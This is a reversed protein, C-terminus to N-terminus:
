YKKKAAASKSLQLLKKKRAEKERKLKEEEELAELDEKKAARLASMEEREVDDFGGEMDSSADSEYDDQEDDEADDLDSWSVYGSYKDDTLRKKKEKERVAAPDVKRMTGKYNLPERETAPKKMTGKYSLEVAKKKPAPANPTGSRSRDGIAGAAVPGKGAKGGAKLQAKHEELLRARERRSLKEVPKHKIGSPGAAKAAEQAAQAKAMISAFGRKAPPAGNANTTPAPSHSSNLRPVPKSPVKQPSSSATPKPSPRDPVAAAKQGATGKATLQFRSTPAAPRVTSTPQEIKVSKTQPTGSPEESRRKVGAASNNPVLGSTTRM